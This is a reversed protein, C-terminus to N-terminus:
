GMGAAIRRTKPVYNLIKNGTAKGCGLFDGSNKILVFGREDTAKDLDTGRLWESAEDDNLELVNKKALPGILQSGEISLRLEDDAEQAIYLGLSNIRLRSLDLTGFEKNAIFIKGDENKLFVCDTELTAGWQEEIQALLKKTEKKNLINLKQM